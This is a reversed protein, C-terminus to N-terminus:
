NKLDVIKRLLDSFFKFISTEELIQKLLIDNVVRVVDFERHQRVRIKNLLLFFGLLFLKSSQIFEQTIIFLELNDIFAKLQLFILSHNLIM